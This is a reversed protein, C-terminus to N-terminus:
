AVVVAAADPLHRLAASEEAFRDGRGANRTAVIQQLFGVYEERSAFDRSGRLLLAQDVATKFHGHSSEADGNEHAQRVNIRQGSVGYHALLDRYRTQFERTASLNNVAASLSDSRHRRPVGGLEWLANQLGDSLAEFSESACLTVSEWNSYTLVFHYVLHDFPQGAITIGLANMHTFDSAALDGAQHVQRFMIPRARDAGHGAVAARAARLHPSALRPVAGSARQRLWDFLTKALLRPEARLREEVAPWVAAFPDPRTRYTRPGPKKRTSPLTPTSRPLAPGDQREDRDEPGGRGLFNGLGLERLLSDCRAMRLWRM